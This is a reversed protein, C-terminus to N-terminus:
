SNRSRVSERQSKHKCSIFKSPAVILSPSHPEFFYRLLSTTHTVPQERRWNSCSALIKARSIDSWMRCYEIHNAWQSILFSSNEPLGLMLYWLCGLKVECTLLWVEEEDVVCSSLAKKHAQRQLIKEEITRVIFYYIEIHHYSSRGVRHLHLPLCFLAEEPWWAVCAGHGTMLNILM